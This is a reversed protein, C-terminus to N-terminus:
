GWTQHTVAPQGQTVQNPGQPLEERAQPQRLQAELRCEVGVRLWAHLDEPQHAPTCTQPYIYAVRTQLRHFLLSITCVGQIRGQGTGNGRETYAM